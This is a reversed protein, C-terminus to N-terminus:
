IHASDRFNFFSSSASCILYAQYAVLFKIINKRVPKNIREVSCRKHLKPSVKELMFDESNMYLYDKYSERDEAFLKRLLKAHAGDERRHIQDRVWVNKKKVHSLVLLATAIKCKQSIKEPCKSTSLQGRWHSYFFFIEEVKKQTLNRLEACM